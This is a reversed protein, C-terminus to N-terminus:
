HGDVWTGIYASQSTCGSETMSCGRAAEAAGDALPLTRVPPLDVEALDVGFEEWDWAAGGWLTLPGLQVSASINTSM